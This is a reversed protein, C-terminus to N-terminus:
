WRTPRTRFMTVHCVDALRLTEFCAQVTRQRDTGHWFPDQPEDLAFLRPWTAEKVSRQEPEPLGEIADWEEDSSVLPSINLVAHWMDFDSLLLEVDPVDLELRMCVTGEPWGNHYLQRERLDPRLHGCPPHVWAWWPWHGGYHPLRLAMQSRMWAYADEFGEMALAPDAYLVRDASLRAYLTAEAIMWVRM